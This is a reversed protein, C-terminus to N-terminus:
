IGLAHVVIPTGMSIKSNSILGLPGAFFIFKPDHAYALLHNNVSPSFSVAGRASATGLSPAPRHPASNGRLVKKFRSNSTTEEETCLRQLPQLIDEFKKAVL